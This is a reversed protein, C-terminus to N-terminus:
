LFVVDDGYTTTLRVRREYRLNQKTTAYSFIYFRRCCLRFGVSRTISGAGHVSFQKTSVTQVGLENRPTSVDTETSILSM